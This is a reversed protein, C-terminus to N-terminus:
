YYRLSSPQYFGYYPYFFHFKRRFPNPRFHRRNAFRRRPKNKRRFVLPTPVFGAATEMIEDQITNIPADRFPIENVPFNDEFSDPMSVQSLLDIPTGAHPLFDIPSQAPPLLDISSPGASQTLDMPSQEPPFLDPSQAEEILNPIDDVQSVVSEEIIIDVTDDCNTDKSDSSDDPAMIDITEGKKQEGNNLTSEEHKTKSEISESQSLNKNDSTITQKSVPNAIVGIVGVALLIILRNKM